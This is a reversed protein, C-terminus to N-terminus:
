AVNSSAEPAAKSNIHTGRRRKFRKLECSGKHQWNITVDSEQKM